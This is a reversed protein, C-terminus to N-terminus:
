QGHSRGQGGKQRVYGDVAENVGDKTGKKVEAKNVNGYFYQEIHINGAPVYGKPVILNGSGNAFGLGSSIGEPQKGNGKSPLLRSLLELWPEMIKILIDLDKVLDELDKLLGPGLAATIDAAMKDLASVLNSIGINTDNLRKLQTDTLVPAAAFNKANFVQRDLAVQMGETQGFSSLVLRKWATDKELAAYKQLGQIAKTPDDAWAKFMAANVPTKMIQAYRGLWEPMGHALSTNKMLVQLSKLSNEMEQQSVHAQQAAYDYEQLKRTSIGTLISTNTLNTGLKLSSAGFQEMAYLAGIIGAKAELSMSTLDSMGVTVSKLSGITKETGKIGLNIFLEGVSSGM